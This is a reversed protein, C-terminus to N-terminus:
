KYLSRLELNEIEIILTDKWRWIWSPCRAYSLHLEQKWSTLFSPGHTRRTNATKYSYNLIVHWQPGSPPHGGQAGVCEDLGQLYLSSPFLSFVKGWPASMKTSLFPFYVVFSYMILWISDLAQLFSYLWPTCYICILCCPYRATSQQKRRPVLSPRGSVFLKADSCLGSAWSSVQWAFFQSLCMRTLSFLM